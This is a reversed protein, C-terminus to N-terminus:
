IQEWKRYFIISEALQEKAPDTESHSVCVPFLPMHDIGLTFQLIIWLTIYTILWSDIMDVYGVWLWSNCLVICLIHYLWIWFDLGSKNTLYMTMCPVIVDFWDVHFWFSFKLIYSPSLYYIVTFCITNSKNSLIIINIIYITFTM